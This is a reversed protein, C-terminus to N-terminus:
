SRGIGRRWRPRGPAAGSVSEDAPLPRDPLPHADPLRSRPRDSTVDLGGATRAALAIVALAGGTAITLLGTVLQEMDGPAPDLSARVLLAAELVLVAGVGLRLVDRGAILPAAALLGLAFGAAQAEAPGFAAAGLGHSGFGVIAAAGAALAEAPWGIRTGSTTVDGRLGIGILRAALLAAVLRVLIAVPDPWPDVLLPAALFVVLLGLITARPDRASVALVAGGVTVVAIGTLAPNV